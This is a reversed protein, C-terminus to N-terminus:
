RGYEGLGLQTGLGEIVNGIADALNDASDPSLRHRIAVLHALTRLGQVLLDFRQPEAELLAALRARLLAIEQRLDAPDLEHADVLAEQQQPTLHRAYLGHRLANTNAPQAGRRRKPSGKAM